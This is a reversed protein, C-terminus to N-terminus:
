PIQMAFCGMGVVRQTLLRTPSRSHWPAPSIRMRWLIVDSSSCRMVQHIAPWTEDQHTAFLSGDRSDCPTADHAMFTRLDAVSCVDCCRRGDFAYLAHSWTHLVRHRSAIAHHCGDFRRADQSLMRLSSFDGRCIDDGLDITQSANRQLQTDFRAVM